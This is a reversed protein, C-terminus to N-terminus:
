QLRPTIFILLEESEKSKVDNKFLAGLIPIKSLLPVASENESEKSKVIGGIVLTDGNKVLVQTSAQRSNITPNGLVDTRTFDPEDKTVEVKLFVSGDPVSQPTVTLKINADKYTTSYTGDANRTTVPIQAGHKIVAQENDVTMIRPNSLTKAKGASEIASIRLALNITQSANLFGLTIAGAPSASAIATSVAPFTGPLGSRADTSPFSSKPQM